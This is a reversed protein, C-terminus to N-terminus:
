KCRSWTKRQLKLHSCPQVGKRGRLQGPTTDRIARAQSRRQHSRTKIEGTNCTAHILPVLGEQCLSPDPEHCPRHLLMPRAQTQRATGILRPRSPRASLDLDTKRQKTWCGGGKRTAPAAYRDGTSPETRYFKTGSDCVNQCTGIANAKWHATAMPQLRTGHAAM